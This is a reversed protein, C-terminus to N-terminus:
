VAQRRIRVQTRLEIAIRLWGRTTPFETKTGLSRDGLFDGHWFSFFM